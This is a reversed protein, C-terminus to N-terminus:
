KLLSSVTKRYGNYYSWEYGSLGLSRALRFPWATGEPEFGFLYAHYRGVTYRLGLLKGDSAFWHYCLLQVIAGM